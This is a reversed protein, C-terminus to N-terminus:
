INRAWIRSPIIFTNYVESMRHSRHVSTMSIRFEFDITSNIEFPMVKTIPNNNDKWYDIPKDQNNPVAAFEILSRGDISFFCRRKKPVNSSVSGPSSYIMVLLQGTTCTIRWRKVVLSQKKNMDVINWDNIVTLPVTSNLFLLNQFIQDNVIDTTLEPNNNPDIEVPPTWIRDLTM